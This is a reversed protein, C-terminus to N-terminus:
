IAYQKSIISVSSENLYEDFLDNSNYEIENEYTDSPSKMTIPVSLAMLKDKENQLRMIKEEYLIELDNIQNQYSIIQQKLKNSETIYDKTNM